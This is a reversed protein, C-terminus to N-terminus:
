AGANAHQDSVYLFARLRRLAVRNATVGHPPRARPAVPAPQPPPETWYIDTVETLLRLVEQTSVFIVFTLTFPICHVSWIASLVGVLVYLVGLEILQPRLAFFTSDM